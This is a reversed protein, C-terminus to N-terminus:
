TPATVLCSAAKCHSAPKIITRNLEKLKSHYAPQQKPHHTMHIRVKINTFTGVVGAWQTNRNKKAVARRQRTPRTSALSCPIEAQIGSDPLTNRAKKDSKRFTKLLLVSDRGMRPYFAHRQMKMVLNEENIKRIVMNLKM